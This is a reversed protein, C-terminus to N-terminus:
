GRPRLRSVVDVISRINTYLDIEEDPVTVDFHKEIAAVIQLGQLSDVNLELRLDTDPTIAHMPAKTISSVIATVETTIEETNLATPTSYAYTPSRRALM